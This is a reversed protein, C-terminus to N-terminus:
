KGCTVWLETKEPLDKFEPASGADIKRLKPGGFHVEQGKVTIGGFSRGKPYQMTKAQDQVKDMAKMDTDQAELLKYLSGDM